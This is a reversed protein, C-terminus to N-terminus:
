RGAMQWSLRTMSLVCLRLAIWCCQSSSQKFVGAEGELLVSSLDPDPSCVRQECLRVALRVVQSSSTPHQIRLFLEAPAAQPTTTVAAGRGTEFYVLFHTGETSVDPKTIEVSSSGTSHCASNHQQVEVVAVGAALEPGVCQQGEPLAACPGAAPGLSV